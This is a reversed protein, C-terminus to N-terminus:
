LRKFIWQIKGQSLDRSIILRKDRYERNLTYVVDSRKINIRDEASTFNLTDREIIIKNDPVSFTITDGEMVRNPFQSILMKEILGPEGEEVFQFEEKIEISIQVVQWKGELYKNTNCGFLSLLLLINILDLKKRKIGIM